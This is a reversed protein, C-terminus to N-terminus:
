SDLILLSQKQMQTDSSSPGKLQRLVNMIKSIKYRPSYLLKDEVRVTKRVTTWWSSYQLGPPSVEMNLVTAFNFHFFEM